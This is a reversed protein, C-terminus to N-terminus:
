PKASIHSPWLRTLPPWVALKYGRSATRCASARKNGFNTECPAAISWWSGSVPGRGTLSNMM